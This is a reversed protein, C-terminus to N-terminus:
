GFALGVGVGGVEHEFFAAEDEVAGEVFEDVGVVLEDALEQLLGWRPLRFNAGHACQKNAGRKLTPYAEMLTGPLHKVFYVPSM